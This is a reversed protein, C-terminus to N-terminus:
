CDIGKEAMQFISLWEPFGSGANNLKKTFDTNILPERHALLGVHFALPSEWLEGRFLICWFAQGDSVSKCIYLRFYMSEGVGLHAEISICNFKSFDEERQWFFWM